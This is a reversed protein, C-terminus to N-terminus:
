HFQFGPVIRYRVINVNLSEFGNLPISLVQPLDKDTNGRGENPIWEISNFSGPRPPSPPRSGLSDM